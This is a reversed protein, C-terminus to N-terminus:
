HAVWSDFFLKCKKLAIDNPSLGNDGERNNVKSLRFRKRLVWEKLKLKSNIDFVKIDSLKLLFYIWVDDSTPALELFIRTTFFFPNIAKIPLAIGGVGTPFLGFQYTKIDFKNWSNYPLFDGNRDFFAKHCRHAIATKENQFRELQFDELWSPPYIIDDDCIVVWDYDHNIKSLNNLLPISKTYPGLDECYKIEFNESELSLLSKPVIKKDMEDVHLIIKSPLVTQTLLSKITIEVNDIRKDFTTLSVILNNIIARKQRKNLEYAILFKLNKIKTLFSFFHSNIKESNIM